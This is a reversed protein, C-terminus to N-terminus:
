IANATPIASAGSATSGAFLVVVTLIVLVAGFVGLGIWAKPGVMRSLPWTVAAALLFVGVKTAVYAFRVNPDSFVRQVM